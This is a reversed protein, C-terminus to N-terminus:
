RYSLEGRANASVRGATFPEHISEVIAEVVFSM